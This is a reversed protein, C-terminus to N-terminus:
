VALVAQLDSCGAPETDAAGPCGYRPGGFVALPPKEGLDSHGSSHGPMM